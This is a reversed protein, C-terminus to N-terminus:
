KPLTSWWVWGAWALGLVGFLATAFLLRWRLRGRPSQWGAVAGIILAVAAAIPGTIIAQLGITEGATRTRAAGAVSFQIADWVILVLIALLIAGAFARGTRAGAALPPALDTM